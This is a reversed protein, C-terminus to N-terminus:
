QDGVTRRVGRVGDVSIERRQDGAAGPRHPLEIGSVQIHDDTVRHERISM